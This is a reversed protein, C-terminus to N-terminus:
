PAAPSKPELEVEVTWPQLEELIFDAPRTVDPEGVFASNVGPHAQSMDLHVSILREDNRYFNRIESLFTASIKQPRLGKLQLTQPVSRVRVPVEFTHSAKKAGLVFGIWLLVAATLAVAKERTNKALFQRVMSQGNAGSPASQFARLRVELDSLGPVEEMRGERFATITGREESVALCLADSRESLGLAAAHRTGYQGTRAFDRSLPLRCGFRSIRGNEVIVAGDHGPSHADFISKLIPESVDGGLNWGGDLHRDLPDRGRLVVLAGVKARALDGVARVLPEIFDGSGAAEKRGELSWVAIREFVRRLEEQFIVVLAVLLIAFFGHFISTTLEMGMARSLLYVVALVLMGKAVVAAKAKKFWFLLSYLFVAVLAIDFVDAIGVSKLCTLLM